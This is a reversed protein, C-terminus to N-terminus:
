YGPQDIYKDLSSKKDKVLMNEVYKGILDFELNVEDGINLNKMTTKEWSHPIISVMFSSSEKKSVTLSIGNIAVSGVPIIYKSYEVPHHIYVNIGTQLKQIMSVRGICDIHGQVLHGGLRDNLKVARELNVENGAKLYKLTTKKLTEEIAEVAFQKANIEVVTQCAGNVSVSDDVKLDEYIFNSNIYIKLGGGINRVTAVTGIEEILGTFM